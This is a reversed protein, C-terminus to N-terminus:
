IKKGITSTMKKIEEMKEPEPKKFDEPKYIREKKPDVKKKPKIGQLRLWNKITHYHSKYKKGKSCIYDNLREIYEQTIGFGFDDILKQYNEKSLYVSDFFKQKNTKKQITEKINDKTTDNKSITKPKITDNKSVTNDNEAMDNIAIDIKAIASNSVDYNIEYIFGLPSNHQIIVRKKKLGDIANRLSNISMGSLKKIQSHSIRDTKKHWGITKRCILVVVKFESNTLLHMNDIIINPVQTHNPIQLKSM